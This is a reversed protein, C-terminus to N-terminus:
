RASKNYKGAEKEEKVGEEKPAAIAHGSLSERRAPRVLFRIGTPSTKKHRDLGAGHGV